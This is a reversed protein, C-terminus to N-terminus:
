YKEKLQQYISISLISAIILNFSILCFVAFFLGYTALIFITVYILICDTKYFKWNKLCLVIPITGLFIYFFLGIIGGIMLFYLVWNHIYSVNEQIYINFGAPYKILHKFGLGKGLLPSEKFLSWAIAYEQRRASINEDSTHNESVSEMSKNNVSNNEAIEYSASRNKLGIKLHLLRNLYIDNMEFTDVIFIATLIIAIMVLPAKLLTAKRNAIGLLLTSFGVTLVASLIMSRTLSFIIAVTSAVSLLLGFSFYYFNRANVSTVFGWVVGIPVLIDTSQELIVTVRQKFKYVEFSDKYDLIEESGINVWRNNEFIWFLPKWLETDFYTYVVRFAFMLATIGLSLKLCYYHDNESLLILAFPYFCGILMFPMAGRLWDHAPVSNMHAVVFNSSLFAISLIYIYLVIRPPKFFHNRNKIISGLVTGFILLIYLAETLGINKPASPLIYLAPFLSILGLHPYGLISLISILVIFVWGIWLAIGSCHYVLVAVIAALLCCANLVAKHSQNFYRLIYNM